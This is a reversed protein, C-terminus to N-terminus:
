YAGEKDSVKFRIKTQLDKDMATHIKNTEYIAKLGITALSM